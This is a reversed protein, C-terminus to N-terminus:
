LAEVLSREYEDRCRRTVFKMKGWSVPNQKPRRVRKRHWANCSCWYVNLRMLRSVFNEETVVAVLADRGEDDLVPRWILRGRTSDELGEKDRHEPSCAMDPTM